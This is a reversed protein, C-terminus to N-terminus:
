PANSSDRPDESPLIGKTSGSIVDMVKKLREDEVDLPVKFKGPFANFRKGLNVLANIKNHLSFRVSQGYAGSRQTISQIAATQQITLDDSSKMKVGNKDFTLFNIINSFALVEMERVVDDAEKNARALQGKLEESIKDQVYTISLLRQAGVKAAKNSKCTKNAAKYARIRDFDIVLEAVFRNYRRYVAQRVSQKKIRKKAKKRAKKAM